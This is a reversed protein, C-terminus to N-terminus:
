RETLAERAQRAKDQAAEYRLEMDLARIGLWFVLAVMVLALYGEIRQRTSM